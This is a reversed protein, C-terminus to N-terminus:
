KKNLETTLNCFVKFSLLINDLKEVIRRQNVGTKEEINELSPSENYKNRERFRMKYIDYTREDSCLKLRNEFEKLEESNPYCEIYDDILKYKTYGKPKYMFGEQLLKRNSKKSIKRDSLNIGAFLASMLALVFNIKLILFISTMVAMTMVFCKYRNEYHKAGLITRVIMFELILILGELWNNKLIINIIILIFIELLVIIENLKHYIGKM